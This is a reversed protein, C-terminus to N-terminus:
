CRMIMDNEDEDEMREELNHIADLKPGDSGHSVFFDRFREANLVIYKAWIEELSLSM